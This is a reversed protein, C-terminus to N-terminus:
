IKLPVYITRLNKLQEYDFGMLSEGKMKTAQAISRDTQQVKETKGEKQFKERQIRLAEIDDNFKKEIALREDTYNQYQELLAKSLTAEAKERTEVAVKDYENLTDQKKQSLDEKTKTKPVFVIGEEKYKPHEKEWEKREIDQQDKIYQSTRRDNDAKAKRYNLQIQEQQKKFGEDMADIKAQSLELEAQVAKEIDQQNQEDILRQREVKEVKLKNEEEKKKKKAGLTQKDDGTLTALASEAEKLEKAKDEITSKITKGVDAKGKGSRLDEIEQKLDAVKKIAEGIEKTVNPEKIEDKPNKQAEKLLRINNLMEGEGMLNSVSGDHRIAVQKKGSKNFRELAAEYMAIDKAIQEATLNIYENTDYGLKDHIDKYTNELLKNNAIM